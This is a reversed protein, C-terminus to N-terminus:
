APPEDDHLPDSPEDDLFPDLPGDDMSTEDSVADGDPVADTSDDEVPQISRAIALKAVRVEVGEAIELTVVDDDLATVTGYIGSSSIVEDGVALQALLAQQTRVRRQQPRIFAFYMLVFLAPLLILNM